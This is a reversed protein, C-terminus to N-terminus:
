EPITVTERELKPTKSKALAENTIVMRELRKADRIARYDKPLYDAYRDDRKRASYRYYVDGKKLTRVIDSFVSRIGQKGELIKFQPRDSNQAEYMGHLLPLASHFDSALRDLMSQLRDPSEAVYVSRKGKQSIGIVGSERLIPLTRYIIQRHYGTRKAIDTIGSAGHELLDLYIDAEPESFGIKRLMAHYNMIKDCYTSM